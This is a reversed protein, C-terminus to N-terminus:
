KKHKNKHKNEYDNIREQLIDFQKRREPDYTEIGTENNFKTLDDLMKIAKKGDPSTWLNYETKNMPPYDKKEKNKKKTIKLDFWKDSM